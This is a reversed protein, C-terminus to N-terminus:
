KCKHWIKINEVFALTLEESKIKKQRILNVNESLSNKTLDTM